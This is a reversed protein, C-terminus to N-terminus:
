VSRGWKKLLVAFAFMLEFVYLCGCAIDRKEYLTYNHRDWCCVYMCLSLIHMCICMVTCYIHWFSEQAWSFLWHQNNDTAHHLPYVPKVSACLVLCMFEYARICVHVGVHKQVYVGFAGECLAWCCCMMICWLPFMCLIMWLFLWIMVKECVITPINWMCYIEHPESKHLRTDAYVDHCLDLFM